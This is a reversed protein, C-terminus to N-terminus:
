FDVALPYRIMLEVGNGPESHLELEANILKARSQMNILGSGKEIKKIDFGEGDDFARVVLYDHEYDLIININKAKSYKVSNSLFEQIIRFLVVEDKNKTMPVQDGVVHLRATDFRMRELRDLENKISKVFGADLVVEGNLSKSLSRVESLSSKLTHQLEAVHHQFEEPMKMGVPGIQMNGLILLQGVSDHLEWGIDKLIQEQTEAKANAIESEFAQKQRLQEQLLKNKRINFMVFFTIFLMVIVAIVNVMYILLYREASTSALREGAETIVIFLM